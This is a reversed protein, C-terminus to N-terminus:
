DPTLLKRLEAIGIPKFLSHVEMQGHADALIAGMKAYMPNFGTIVALRIDAGRSILWRILEIGDLDPMVVDLIVVTPRFREFAAAFERSQTLVEVEFGEGEAIRRVFRGFAAEDDMVLLRKENPQM